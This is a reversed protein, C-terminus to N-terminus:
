SSGCTSGFNLFDEQRGILLEDLRPGLLRFAPDTESWSPWDRDAFPGLLPSPISISAFISPRWAAGGVRVVTQKKGEHANRPWRVTATPRLRKYTECIM